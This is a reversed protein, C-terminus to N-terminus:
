RTPHSAIYVLLLKDVDGLLVIGGDEPNFLLGIYKNSQEAQEEVRFISVNHEVLSCAILDWVITSKM